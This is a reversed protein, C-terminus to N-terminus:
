PTRIPGPLNASIPDLDLILREREHNLNPNDVIQEAEVRSTTAHIMPSGGAAVQAEDARFDLMEAPDGQSTMAEEEDLVRVCYNGQYPETVCAAYFTL